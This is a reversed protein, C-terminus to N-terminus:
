RGKAEGETLGASKPFVVFFTAGQGSEASFWIRGGHKQMIRKVNALGVGVGPFEAESHLRKFVGFLHGAYEMSFGVGNDRVLFGHEAPNDIPLIEIRPHERKGSYKVANEILNQVLQRAMVRDCHVVPLAEIVWEIRRGVLAADVEAVYARVLEELPVMVAQVATRGLRANALLCNILEDMREASRMIRDAFDLATRSRRVDDDTVLLGAFGAMRHLPARLDHSVVSTMDQLEAITASLEATRAAVRNELVAASERLVQEALKAETIDVLTGIYGSFEGTPDRRPAAVASLWRFEGDRRRRRYEVAIPVRATIAADNALRTRELDDPHTDAAWSIRSQAEATHGTFALMARNVFVYQGDPGTMWIMVPADEALTRFRLESEALGHLAYERESADNQVAIFHTLVGEANRLPALSLQNWFMSGDKRYNRLLVECARGESLAARLPALAPQSRETGQLFRCNRGIADAAAYGTITEFARNAFIIPTDPARADAILIAQPSGAVVAGLLRLESEALLQESVDRMIVTYLQRGEVVVHSISAEVPFEAGDARLAMVKGPRGMARTTRGENGFARVHGGHADRFRGPIFREIGAGIAEEPAVGFMRAAAANYLVVHLAEDVTIIADMASEVVGKLREQNQRLLRQVSKSETIDRHIWLRGQPVGDVIIPVFDRRCYRQGRLVIEEDVVATGKAIIEAVRTLATSPDAYAASIMQLVDPAARGVLREPEVGLAFMDCFERNTFEILGDNGVLLIGGHLNEFVTQFRRATALRVADTRKRETVDHISAYVAPAGDFTVSTGQVEVDIPTGDMRTFRLEAKPASFDHDTTSNLRALAAARSDPHIRDLVSKGVLDQASDAGFLKVAAPNVYIVIDARHIRVPDPSWDVLARYRAESERLALEALKRGTIDNHAVVAGGRGAGLPTATLSFWRQRTPSHCPYEMNFSASEGGLVALIGARAKIADDDTASLASAGCDALYNTGIDANAAARGPEGANDVAFRRWAQNVAVIVGEADLVAIQAAVANLIGLTLGGPEPFFPNDDHAM